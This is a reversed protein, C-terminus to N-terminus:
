VEVDEPESESDEEVDGEDSDGPASDKFTEFRTTNAGKQKVDIFPPEPQEPLVKLKGQFSTLFGISTWAM